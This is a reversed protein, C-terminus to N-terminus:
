YWRCFFTPGTIIPTGTYITVFDAPPNIQAIKLFGTAATCYQADNVPSWKFSTGGLINM